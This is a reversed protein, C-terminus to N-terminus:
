ARYPSDGSADRPPTPASAVGLELPEAVPTFGKLAAV